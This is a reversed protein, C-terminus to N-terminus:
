KRHLKHGKLHKHNLMIVERILKAALCSTLGKDWNPCVEMLDFGILYPALAEILALGELNTLGFPEPTSVGPAYTPDIGDMDFTLYIKKVKLFSLANKVVEKIGKIRIDWQTFYRLGDEKADQIEDESASRIGLLVIREPGMQEVIRRAVCAHSFREGEYEKRYDLHADLQIVGFDERLESLAWIVGISGTHEGGILLPFKGARAIKKAIRYVKKIMQKPKERNSVKIAGWDNIKISRLDIGRKLDWSEFNWSEKCIAEPAKSAGKRHTTTRDYPLYFIVYKAEKFEANADAFGYFAEM